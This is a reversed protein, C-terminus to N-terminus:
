IWIILAEVDELKLAEPNTPSPSPPSPPSNVIGVWGCNGCKHPENENEITKYFGCQPCRIVIAKAVQIDAHQLLNKSGMTMNDSVPSGSTSDLPKSKEM